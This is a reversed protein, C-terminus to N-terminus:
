PWWHFRTTSRVLDRSQQVELCRAAQADELDALTAFHRNALVTDTVPTSMLILM